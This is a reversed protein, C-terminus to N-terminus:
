NCDYEIRNWSNNNSSSLIYLSSSKDTSQTYIKNTITTYSWSTIYKTNTTLASKVCDM